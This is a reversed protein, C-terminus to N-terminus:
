SRLEIPQFSAKRSPFWSAIWAVSFVTGLVLLFDTFVLKVPYYDILFSSGELKVLKYRVQLWCIVVALLVGIFGGVTALLLGESLFIKQVLANGTGMAKLVQIDKQKELVLMTLAGIMTFAAVVLIISLIAYIVWKEMQMVSYLSKNQEYRTQVLYNKGFLTALNKKVSEVKGADHLTIEIAGYENAKSHLMRKIFGLNTIVYKNDFDQQIAFTGATNINDASLSQLPDSVTINAGRKSLYITLPVISRDSQVGLASEIGAGLIAAPTDPTGLYFKGRLLKGAVGTVNTYEEDVGKVFVISTMEGNQILAKEEMVMSYSRIEPMRKLAALQEASILISKGHVPAVRLDTYFNAYLSKVLDEFGNFVSLLIILSATGVAIALVSVWAIINIANTSKKAIFYRWAFTFYM